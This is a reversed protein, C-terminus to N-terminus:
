KISLYELIGLNGHRDGPRSDFCDGTTLVEVERGSLFAALAIDRLNELVAPDNTKVAARQPFDCGPAVEDGFWVQLVYPSTTAQARVREVPTSGVWKAFASPALASTVVIALAAIVKYQQM